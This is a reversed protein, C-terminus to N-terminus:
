GLRNWRASIGRSSMSGCLPSLRQARRPVFPHGVGGEKPMM